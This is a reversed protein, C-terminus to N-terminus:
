LKSSIPVDEQPIPCSIM